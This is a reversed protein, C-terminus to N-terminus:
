ELRLSRSMPNYVEATDSIDFTGGDLQFGGVVLVTGDLLLTATHGARAEGLAVQWGEITIRASKGEELSFFEVTETPLFCRDGRNYSSLGGTLMVWGALDGRDLRTATHLARPITMRNWTIEAIQEAGPTLDVVRLADLVEPWDNMIPNYARDVILGGSVLVLDDDLLEGASHFSPLGFRQESNVFAPRTAVLAGDQQKELLVAFEGAEATATAHNGGWVFLRAEDLPLAVMGQRPVMLVSDPSEEWQQNAVLYRAATARAENTGPSLGGLMLIESGLTVATHLFRPNAPEMSVESLLRTSLDILEASSSAPDDIAQASTELVPQPGNDFQVRWLASGVGGAVLVQGNDLLTASHMARPHALELGTPEAFSGTLPDYIDIKSTATLNQCYGGSCTEVQGVGAFGGILLVRGDPLLTSSHLTRPIIMANRVSTFNGCSSIFISVQTTKRHGVTIGSQEGCWLVEYGNEADYGQFIVTRGSGVPLAGMKAGTSHEDRNFNQCISKDMDAASVCIRYDTIGGPAEGAPSPDVRLDGAGVPTFYIRMALHGSDEAPSCGSLAALWVALSMLAVVRKM